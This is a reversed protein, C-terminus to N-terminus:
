KELIIHSKLHTKISIPCFAYTESNNSFHITACIYMEYHNSIWIQRKLSIFNSQSSVAINTILSIVCHFNFLSISYSMVMQWFFICISKISWVVTFIYPNNENTAGGIPLIQGLETYVRLSDLKRNMGFKTFNQSQMRCIPCNTKICM